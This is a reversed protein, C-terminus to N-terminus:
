VPRWGGCYPCQEGDFADAGCGACTRVRLHRTAQQLDVLCLGAQNQQLRTKDVAIQQNQMHCTYREQMSGTIGRALLLFSIDKM